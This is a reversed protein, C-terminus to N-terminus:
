VHVNKKFSYLLNTNYHGIKYNPLHRRSGIHIIQKLQALNHVNGQSTRIDTPKLRKHEFLGRLIKGDLMMLLYNHQDIIKYIM